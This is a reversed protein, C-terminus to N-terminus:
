TELLEPDKKIISSISNNTDKIVRVTNRIKSSNGNANNTECYIEFSSYKLFNVNKYNM